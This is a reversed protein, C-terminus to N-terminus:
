KQYKEVLALTIAKSKLASVTEADLGEFTVVHNDDFGEDALKLNFVDSADGLGVWDSISDGTDYTNGGATQVQKWTDDSNNFGARQKNQTLTMDYLSSSDKGTCEVKIYYTGAALERSLTLTDAGNKGSVNQLSKFKGGNDVGLSVKIGKGNIGALDLSYSGGQKIVVKYYDPNDYISNKVVEGSVNIM